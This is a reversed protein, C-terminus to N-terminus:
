TCRFAAEAAHDRAINFKDVCKETTNYIPYEVYEVQCVGVSSYSVGWVCVYDIWLVYNVM